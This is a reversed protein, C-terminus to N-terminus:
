TAPHEGATGVWEARRDVRRQAADACEAAAVAALDVAALVALVGSREGPPLTRRYRRGYGDRELWGDDVLWRRLAVHDTAFMSGPGALWDMLRRNVEAESHDRGEELALTAAAMAVTFEAFRNKHLVGLSVGRKVALRRFLTLPSPEPSTKM